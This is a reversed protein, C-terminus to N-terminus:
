VMNYNFELIYNQILTQTKTSTKLYVLYYQNKKAIRTYGCDCKFGIIKGEKRTITTWKLGKCIQNGKHIKWLTNAYNKTIINKTIIVNHNASTVYWFLYCTFSLWIIPISIILLDIM